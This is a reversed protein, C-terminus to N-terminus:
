FLIKNDVFYKKGKYKFIDGYLFKLIRPNTSVNKDDIWKKTIDICNEFKKYEEEIEKIYEFIIPFELVYEMM